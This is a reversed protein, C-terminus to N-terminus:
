KNKRIKPKSMFLIHITVAVGILPLLVYLFLKNVFILSIIIMGWLWIMSVWFTKRSLGSRTQYNNIHNRFFPIKMIWGKIRPTSSFCVVAAIVFPTTPWVPVFIGILGFTLCIFGFIALLITRIKM